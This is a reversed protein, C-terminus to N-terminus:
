LESGARKMSRVVGPAWNGFTLLQRPRFGNRSQTVWKGPNGNGNVVPAAPTATRPSAPGPESFGRVESERVPVVIRQFPDPFPCACGPNTRPPIGVGIPFPNIPTLAGILFPNIPSYEFLYLSGRFAVTQGKVAIGESARQCELKSSHRQSTGLVTM